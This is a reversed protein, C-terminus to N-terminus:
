DRRMDTDSVAAAAAPPPPPTLSNPEVMRRALHVHRATVVASGELRAAEAAIEMLARVYNQLTNPSM